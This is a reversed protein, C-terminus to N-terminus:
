TTEEVSIDSMTVFTNKYDSQITCVLLIFGANADTTVTHPQPSEFVNQKIWTGDSKYQGMRVYAGTGSYSIKYKTSPKVACCIGFGYSDSSTKYTMSKTAVAQLVRTNSSGIFYNNSSVGVYIEGAHLNSRVITSDYGTNINNIITNSDIYAINPIAPVSAMAMILGRRLQM